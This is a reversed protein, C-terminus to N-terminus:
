AFEDRSVLAQKKKQRHKKAEEFSMSPNRWKLGKLGLMIDFMATNQTLGSFFEKGPGVASVLVHDSTHNGSTWGVKTHNGLMQALTAGASRMFVNEGLPHKGARSDAVAQAEETSLKIGLKGEVANQVQTATANAGMASFVASYSSKM